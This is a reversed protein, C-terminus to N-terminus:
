NILDVEQSVHTRKYVELIQRRPGHISNSAAFFGVQSALYNTKDNIYTCM